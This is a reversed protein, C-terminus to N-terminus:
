DEPRLRYLDAHILGGNASRHERVLTFTPSQVERPAIGLGAAVGQALVTKGGGLDGCLLLAGGPAPERGLTEGIRRTGEASGSEWSRVGSLGGRARAAGGAL